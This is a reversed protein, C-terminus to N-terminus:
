HKKVVNNIFHQFQETLEANPDDVLRECDQILKRKYHEEFPIFGDVQRIVMSPNIVSSVQSVLESYTYSDIEM